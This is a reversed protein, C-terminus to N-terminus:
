LLAPHAAFRHGYYQLIHARTSGRRRRAHAPGPPPEPGRLRNIRPFQPLSLGCDLRCARGSSLDKSMSRVPGRHPLRAAPLTTTAPCNRPQRIIDKSPQPAGTPQPKTPTRLARAEHVWSGSSGPRVYSAMYRANASRSRWFHILGFAPNTLSVGNSVFFTKDIGREGMQSCTVSGCGAYGGHDPADMSGLDISETSPFIIQNAGPRRTERQDRQDAHDPHELRASAAKRGARRVSALRRPKESPLRRVRPTPSCPSSPSRPPPAEPLM